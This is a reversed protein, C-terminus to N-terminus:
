KVTVLLEDNGTDPNISFGLNVMAIGGEGESIAPEATLQCKPMSLEVINGPDTGHTIEVADETGARLVEGINLTAVSPLEIVTTGSPKRDPLQAGACNVLERWVLTNALDVNLSQMCASVGHFTFVPTNVKGVTRPRVFGSFDTGTPLAADTVAEYAGMFTFNMTPIGKADLTFAVTGRADTIKFLLGDLYGYLTMVPEGTSIPAYVVDVGATVTKAFGCCELLPGWKPENGAAGAGALEVQFEFTRHEGAVLSGFNGKYGRLVAREVFDAKIISPTLGKVLIANAGATPSAPTGVAVQKAALLVMNRMKKM